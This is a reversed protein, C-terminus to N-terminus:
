RAAVALAAELAAEKEDFVEIEDDCDGGRSMRRTSGINNVDMSRKMDTQPDTRTRNMIFDTQEAAEIDEEIAVYPMKLVQLPSACQLSCVTFKLLKGNTPLYSGDVLDIRGLPLDVRSIMM